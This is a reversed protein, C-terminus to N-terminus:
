RAPNRGRQLGKLRDRKSRLRRAVRRGTGVRFRLVAVLSPGILHDVAVYAQQLAVSEPNWPRQWESENLFNIRAVKPDQCCREVTRELLLLGPALQAYDEDYCIKLIEYEGGTLTCLQSAISHGEVCLENIECFDNDYCVSIFSRFFEPWERRSLICTGAAGKWGSAEVAM